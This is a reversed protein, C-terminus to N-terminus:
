YGGAKVSESDIELGRYYPSDVNGSGHTGRDTSREM